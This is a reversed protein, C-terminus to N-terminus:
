KIWLDLKRILTIDGLVLLVALNRPYHLCVTWRLPTPSLVRVHHPKDAIAITPFTSKRVTACRVLGTDSPKTTILRVSIAAPTRGVRALSEAIRIHNCRRM